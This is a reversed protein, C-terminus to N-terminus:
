EYTSAFYTLTKGAYKVKKIYTNIRSKKFHISNITQNDTTLKKIGSSIFQGKKIITEQKTLNSFHDFVLGM